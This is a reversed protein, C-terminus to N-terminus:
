LVLHLQTIINFSWKQFTIKNTKQCTQLFFSVVLWQRLLIKWIFTNVRNLSLQAFWRAEFVGWLRRNNLSIFNNTQRPQM